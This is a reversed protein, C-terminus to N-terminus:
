SEKKSSKGSGLISAHYPRLRHDLLGSLCVSFTKPWFLSSSFDFSPDLIPCPLSPTGFAAPWQHNTIYAESIFSANVRLLSTQTTELVRSTHTLLSTCNCHKGFGGLCTSIDSGVRWKLIFTVWFLSPYLDMSDGLHGIIGVGWELQSEVKHQAEGESTILAGGIPSHHQGQRGLIAGYRRWKCIHNYIRQSCPSNLITHIRGTVWNMTPQGFIMSHQFSLPLSNIVTKALSTIHVPRYNSLNGPSVTHLDLVQGIWM